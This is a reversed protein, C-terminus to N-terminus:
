NHRLTPRNPNMKNPVYTSGTGSYIEKTLNPFNESTMSKVFISQGRKREKRRCGKYCLHQYRQHQGM